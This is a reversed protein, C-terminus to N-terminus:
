GFVPIECTKDAFLSRDCKRVACLWKFEVSPLFAGSNFGLSYGCVHEEDSSVHLKVVSPLRWVLM